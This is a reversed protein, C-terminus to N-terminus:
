QFCRYEHRNILDDKGKDEACNGKQEAADPERQKYRVTEYEVPALGPVKPEECLRRGGPEITRFKQEDSETKEGKQETEHSECKM